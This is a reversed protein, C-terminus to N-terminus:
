KASNHSDLLIGAWLNRRHDRPLKGATATCQTFVECRRCLNRAQHHRAERQEKSEGRIDADFLPSHGACAAGKLSTDRIPILSKPLNKIKPFPPTKM